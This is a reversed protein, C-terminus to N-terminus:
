LLCTIDPVQDDLAIVLDIHHQQEHRLIECIQEAMAYEGLTKCQRVRERYNRITETANELKFRLMEETNASTKVLEPKIEPIGGLYHIQEAIILAHQLEEHAQKELRGAINRYAAGNVMESYIVYIMIAQCERSLDENLLDVLKSPSIETTGPQQKDAM